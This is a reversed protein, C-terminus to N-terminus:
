LLSLSLLWQDLWHMSTHPVPDRCAHAGATVLQSEDPHFAVASFGQGALSARRTFTRLDWVICVVDAAASVCETDGGGLALGTVAAKCAM